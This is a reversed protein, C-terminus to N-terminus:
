VEVDTIHIYYVFDKKQKLQLYQINKKIEVKIISKNKQQKKQKKNRKKKM